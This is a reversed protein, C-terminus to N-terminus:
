ALSSDIYLMNIHWNGELSWKHKCKAELISHKRCKLTGYNFLCFPFNFVKSFYNNQVKFYSIELNLIIIKRVRICRWFMVLSKLIVLALLLLLNYYILNKYNIIIKYNMFSTEFRTSSFSLESGYALHINNNNNNNTTDIGNAFEEM